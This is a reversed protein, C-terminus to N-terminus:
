HHNFEAEIDCYMLINNFKDIFWHQSWLMRIHIKSNEIVHWMCLRHKAQPFMKRIAVTISPGLNMMVTMSHKEGNIVLFDSFFWIFSKIRENLIFRCGLMININHHNMCIFLVCIMNYKNTWYTTDFVGMDEFLNYSRENPWKELFYLHSKSRWRIWLCLLLKPRWKDTKNLKGILTNSDTDDLHKRRCEWVM